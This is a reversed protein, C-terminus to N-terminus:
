SAAAFKAARPKPASKGSVLAQDREEHLRFLSRGMRALLNRAARWLRRMLFVEGVLIAAAIFLVPLLWGAIVADVRMELTVGTGQQIFAAVNPLVNVATFLVILYDALLVLAMLAFSAVRHLARTGFLGLRLYLRDGLTFPDASASGKPASPTSRIRSIQNRSM